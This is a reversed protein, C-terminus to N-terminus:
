EFRKNVEHFVTEFRVLTEQSFDDAKLGQSSAYRAVQYHNFRQTGIIKNIQKLLPEKQEPVSEIDEYKQFVSNFFALYETKKFLDELDAINDELTIFQDFFLINKEKIIKMKILDNLRYKSKQDTFSDLLCVLDLKQGRLLSIFSVVKDLGGVPVIAIDEKLGKKGSEELIASMM